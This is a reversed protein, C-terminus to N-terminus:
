GWEPLSAAPLKSRGALRQCSPGALAYRLRQCSPGALQGSAPTEGSALGAQISGGAYGSAADLGGLFWFATVGGLVVYKTAGEQVKGKDHPKAYVPVLLM